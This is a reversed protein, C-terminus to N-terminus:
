YLKQASHKSLAIVLELKSDLSAIVAFYIVNLM